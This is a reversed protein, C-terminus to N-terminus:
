GVSELYKPYEFFWGNGNVAKCLNVDYESDPNYPNIWFFNRYLRKISTPNSVDFATVFATGGSGSGGAIPFFMTNGLIVTPHAQASMFGRGLTGPVLKATDGWEQNTGCMLEPEMDM